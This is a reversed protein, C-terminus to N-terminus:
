GDEKKKKKPKKKKKAEVESKKKKCSLPNPQKVKKKRKVPEETQGVDKKLISVEFSQPRTKALEIEKIKQLTEASPPELIMVGKNIYILPTGPIKRLQARLATDQTAVAYNFQNTEGVIERICKAAEIHPRHPCRRKEFDLCNSAAESFDPGLSSLEAYVCATSMPKATGVLLKPLLHFLDHKVLASVQAFNGDILVQYPERFGFSNAYVAM